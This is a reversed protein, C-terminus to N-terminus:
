FYQYEGLVRACRDQSGVVGLLALDGALCLSTLLTFRFDVCISTYELGSSIITVVVLNPCYPCLSAPRLCRAIVHLM